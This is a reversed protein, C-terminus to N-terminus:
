GEICRHKKQRFVQVMGEIMMSIALVSIGLIYFLVAKESIRSVPYFGAGIIILKLFFVVFLLAKGKGKALFRDMAKISIYFGALIITSAFLIVLSYIYNGTMIYTILVFFFVLYIATKYIRDILAKSFTM